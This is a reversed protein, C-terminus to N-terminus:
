LGFLFADVLLNRSEVKKSDNSIKCLGYAIHPWLLTQFIVFFWPLFFEGEYLVLCIILGMFLNGLVRGSYNIKAM